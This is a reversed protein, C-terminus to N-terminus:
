VLLVMEAMIGFGLLRFRFQLSLCVGLVLLALGRFGLWRFLAGKVVMGALVRGEGGAMEQVRECVPVTGFVKARGGWTGKGGMGRPVNR